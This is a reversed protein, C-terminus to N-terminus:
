VYSAHIRNSRGNFTISHGPHITGDLFSQLLTLTHAAALANAALLQPASPVHNACSGVVPIFDDPNALDPYIERPDSGIHHGDVRAWIMVQGKIPGPEGEALGEADANGPNLYCFNQTSPLGDIARLAAARTAANDVATILLPNPASWLFDGISTTNAFVPQYLVDLGQAACLQSMWAAKNIGEQEPGCPQRIGNREVEYTDADAITLGPAANPHHLLLRALLPALIAGTGGAGILLSGGVLPHESM